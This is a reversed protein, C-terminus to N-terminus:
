SWEPQATVFAPPAASSATATATKHCSNGAAIERYFCQKNLNLIALAPIFGLVLDFL